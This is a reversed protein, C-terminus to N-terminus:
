AAQFPRWRSWRQGSVLAAQEISDLPHTVLQVGAAQAGATLERDPAWRAFVHVESTEGALALQSVIDALSCQRRRLLPQVVSDRFQSANSGALMIVIRSLEIPSVSEFDIVAAKVGAALLPDTQAHITARAISADPGATLIAGAGILYEDM